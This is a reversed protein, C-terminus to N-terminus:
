RLVDKGRRDIDPRHMEAKRPLIHRSMCCLTAARAVINRADNVDDDTSGILITPIETPIFIKSKRLLSEFVTQYLALKIVALRWSGIRLSGALAASNAARAAKTRTM